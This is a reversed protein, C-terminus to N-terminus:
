EAQEWNYSGGELRIFTGIQSGIACSDFINKKETLVEKGLLIRGSEM